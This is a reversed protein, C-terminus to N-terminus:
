AGGSGYLSPDTPTIGSPDHVYVQDGVQAWNYLWQSDGPSLNVCGHSRPWGYGTHWYAGHLARAEDFYMTWPVDELYYRDSGDAEFSGTMYTTDLKQYISFLGPRTWFPDIGSSIVTAFVLRTGEYAVITQEYLNVDLWRASTIGEPPSARPYVMSIYRKEIWEGPRVMVWELGESTTKDYMQYIEFRNVWQGTNNDLSLYSPSSKTEVPQLIWGFPNRPSRQFEIGQFYPTGVRHVDYANMWVGAEVEYVRVEDYVETYTYSIYNFIGEMRRIPNKAHAADELSGYMPANFTVVQGYLYPLYSLGPDPAVYTLPQMPLHIGEAAMKKLYHAPGLELCDGVVGPKCLVVDEADDAFQAVNSFSLEVPSAAQASASASLFFALTLAFLLFYRKM